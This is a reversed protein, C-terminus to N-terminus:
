AVPTPAPAPCTRSRLMEAWKAITRFERASTQQFSWFAFGDIEPEDGDVFRSLHADLQGESNPGYTPVSPLLTAFGRERWSTLGQDVQRPTVTYLQPSGWAGRAALDAWPLSHWDAMGYSSVGSTALGLETRVALDLGLLARVGLSTRSADGEPEDDIAEGQGRSGPPPAKARADRYSVEVDHLLGRASTAKAMAHMTEMYKAELGLRPFGWLWVEIGADRCASAYAVTSSTSAPRHGRKDQWVAMLAVWSAGCARLKQAFAKPTGHTSTSLTRAYFGIGKPANM